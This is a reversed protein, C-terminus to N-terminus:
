NSAFIVYVAIALISISKNPNWSISCVGQELNISNTMRGTAIEWIKVSSDDSGSALWQGTPDVSITKVKDQHGKFVISERSPFPRLDRPDPLKPLLSEQDVQIRKKIMRPCLYLDLCRDFRDEIFRTYGPIQRM